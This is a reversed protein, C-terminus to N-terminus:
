RSYMSEVWAVFEWGGEAKPATGAFYAMDDAPLVLSMQKQTAIKNHRNILELGFLIEQKTESDGFVHIMFERFKAMTIKKGDGYEKMIEAIEKASREEGLSYLCAALEKRDIDGSKDKDFNTFM